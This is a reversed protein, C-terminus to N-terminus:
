YNVEPLIRKIHYALGGYGAGIELFNVEIQQRDEYIIRGKGHMMDNLQTGIYKTKNKWTYTGIGQRKGNAYSGLYENGNKYKM